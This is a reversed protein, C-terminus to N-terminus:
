SFPLPKRADIWFVIDSRVDQSMGTVQVGLESLIAIVTNLGLPVGNWHSHTITKVNAHPSQPLDASAPDPRSVIVTDTEGNFVGLPASPSTDWVPRDPTHISFRIRGGPKCIRCIESLAIRVRSLTSIHQIVAYSFVVDASNSEVGCFGKANLTYVLKVEPVLRRSLAVMTPSIDVGACAFGDAKIARLIRGMGSGYEVILSKQRSLGLRELLPKLNVRYVQEGKEFFSRLDEDTWNEPNADRDKFQQVSMVAYLPNSQAKEEWNLEAKFRADVHAM